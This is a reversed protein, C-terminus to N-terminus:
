IHTVIRQRSQQGLNTIVALHPYDIGREREQEPCSTCESASATAGLTIILLMAAQARYTFMQVCVLGHQRPVYM